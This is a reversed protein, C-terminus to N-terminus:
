ARARGRARGLRASDVQLGCHLRMRLRMGLRLVLLLVLVLLQVLLRLREHACHSDHALGGRRLCRVHCRGRRIVTAARRLELVLVLVL